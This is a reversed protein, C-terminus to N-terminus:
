PIVLIAYNKIEPKDDQENWLTEYISRSEQQDYKPIKIPIGDKAIQDATEKDILIIKM